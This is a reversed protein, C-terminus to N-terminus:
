KIHYNKILLENEESSIVDDRLLTNIRSNLFAFVGYMLISLLCIYMILEILTFGKNM